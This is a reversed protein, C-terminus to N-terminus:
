RCRCGSAWRSASRSFAWSATPSARSNPPSAARATASSSCARRRAWDAAAAAHLVVAARVAAARGARVPLAAFPAAAHADVQPFVMAWPCTPRAGGCNATSSTASDGPPSAWRCWRRSSIPSRSGASTRTPARVAVDRAARRPIRRSLEHRRAVVPLDGASARPLLLPKYFLVYGLRGGLIVGIVGYFLMDDVDRPHWGTLLNQRARRKGLVIFLVFGVLYMLGYWRIALPGLHIAVPDFQPHVLM